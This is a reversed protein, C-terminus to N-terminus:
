SVNSSEAVGRSFNGQKMCLAKPAPITSSRSRTNKAAPFLQATPERKWTDHAWPQIAICTGGRRARVDSRLHELGRFFSCCCRPRTRRTRISFELRSAQQCLVNQGQQLEMAQKQMGLVADQQM